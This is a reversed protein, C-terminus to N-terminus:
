STTTDPTLSSDIVFEALGANQYLSSGTKTKGYLQVKVKAGAFDISTTTDYTIVDGVALGQLTTLNNYEAM